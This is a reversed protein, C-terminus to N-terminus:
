AFTFLIGFDSRCLRTVTYSLPTVDCRYIFLVSDDLGIARFNTMWTQRPFSSQYCACMNCESSCKWQFDFSDGVQKRIIFELESTRVMTIHNVFARYLSNHKNDCTGISDIKHMHRYKLICYPLSMWFCLIQFLHAYVM